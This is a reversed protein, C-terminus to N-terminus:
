EGAGRLRGAERGDLGASFGPVRNSLAVSQVGPLAELKAQVQRDFEAGRPM